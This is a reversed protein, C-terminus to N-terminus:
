IPYLGSAFNRQSDRFATARTAATSLAKAIKNPGAPLPTRLSQDVRLLRNSCM